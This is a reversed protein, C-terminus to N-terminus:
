YYTPFLETPARACVWPVRTCVGEACLLDDRCLGSCAEGEGPQAECVGAVCLLGAACARSCPAGSGPAAHCTAMAPECDLGAACPAGGACGAGEAAPVQCQAEPTSSGCALGDECPYSSSTDPTQFSCTEGVGRAQRLPACVGADCKLSGACESFEVGPMFPAAACPEGLGRDGHVPVCDPGPLQEWVASVFSACEAREIVARVRSELCAADFTLGQDRAFTRLADERVAFEERCTSGDEACGCAEAHACFIETANPEEDGCSLAGAVLLVLTPNRPGM